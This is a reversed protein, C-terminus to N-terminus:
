RTQLSAKTLLFYVITQIMKAHPWFLWLAFMINLDLDKWKDIKVAFLCYIEYHSDFAAISKLLATGIAM